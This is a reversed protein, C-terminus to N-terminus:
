RLPRQCQQMRASLLCLLALLKAQNTVYDLVKEPLILFDLFSLDSGTPGGVYFFVAGVSHWSGSYNTRLDPSRVVTIRLEELRTRRGRDEIM